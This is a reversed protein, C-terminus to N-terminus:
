DSEEEHLNLEGDSEHDFIIVNLCKEDNAECKCLKTCPFFNYIRCSCRGSCKSASCNCRVLEVVAAPAPAM